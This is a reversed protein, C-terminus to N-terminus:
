ATLGLGLAPGCYQRQCSTSGNGSRMPTAPRKHLGCTGEKEHVPPLAPSSSGLCSDAGVCPDMSDTALCPSGQDSLRCLIRRCYLLGWNSEQTPFIGQLVSPSGVRTNKAKWPPKAPLSDAQLALAGSEIGKNPLDRPSPFPQGSWYEPRSIGMSLPLWTPSCDTPDCLTPCSHLPQSKKM